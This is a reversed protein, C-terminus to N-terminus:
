SGSSPVRARARARQRAGSSSRVARRLRRPTRVWAPSGARRASLRALLASRYASLLRPAVAHVALALAAGAIVDVGYHYRLYMTSAWLLVIPPVIVAVILRGYPLVRRLRMFYLLALLTLATHLSPFCDRDILEILNWARAAGATLWPGTLPRTFEAAMVYRPGVAPVLVYGILGAYLCLGLALGVERFRELEGRRYLLVLLGAPYVFYLSYAASMVESLWPTTIRDFALAPTVGLLREDFARLAGDVTDPRIVYTLDHINEYALVAVVLPLWDAILLSARRGLARLSREPGGLTRAAAVLLLVGLIVLPLMVSAHWFSLARPSFLALLLIIMLFVGAVILDAGVLLRSDLGRPTVSRM